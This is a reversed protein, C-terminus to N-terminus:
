HSLRNRLYVVISSGVLYGFLGLGVLWPATRYKNWLIACVVTGIVGIVFLVVNLLQSSNM